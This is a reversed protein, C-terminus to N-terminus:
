VSFSCNHDVALDHFYNNFSMLKLSPSPVHFQLLISLSGDLSLILALKALITPDVMASRAKPDIPIWLMRAWCVVLLELGDVTVVLQTPQKTVPRISVASWIVGLAARV